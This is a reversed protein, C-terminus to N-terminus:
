TSEKPRRAEVTLFPDGARTRCLARRQLAPAVGNKWVSGILPSAVSGGLGAPRTSPQHGAPAGHLAGGGEPRNEATAVGGHAATLRAVIALGLGAGGDCQQAHPRCPLAPRRRPRGGAATRGSPGPTVGGSRFTHRHGSVLSRAGLDPSAPAATTASTTPPRTTPATSPRRSPPSPGSRPSPRCSSCSSRSATACSVYEKTTPTAVAPWRSPARAAVADESADRTVCGRLERRQAFPLRFQEPVTGRDTRVRM